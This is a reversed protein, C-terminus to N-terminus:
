NQSSGSWCTETQIYNIRKLGDHIANCTKGRNHLNATTSDREQDHVIDLLTFWSAYFYFIHLSPSLDRHELASVCWFESALPVIWSMVPICVAFEYIFNLSGIFLMNSSNFLSTCKLSAKLCSYIYRTLCNSLTNM